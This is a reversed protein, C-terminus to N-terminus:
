ADRMRGIESLTEEVLRQQDDATIERQLIKGAIASALISAEAHLETIAAQRASDIDKTARQKLNAMETENQRRMTEGAAKADAKAQTIMDAAEKRATVLSEQYEALAAEASEKAADAEALADRIRQEREDLGKTILPWVKLYLFGFAILFVVLSTAAPLWNLAMVDAHEVAHTVDEAAHEDQALFWFLM